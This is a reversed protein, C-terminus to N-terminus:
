RRIAAAYGYFGLWIERRTAPDIVPPLYSLTIQDQLTATPAGALGPRANAYDRQAATPRSDKQTDMSSGSSVAGLTTDPATWPHDTLITCRNQAKSCFLCPHRSHAQMVQLVHTKQLQRLHEVEMTLSALSGALSHKRSYSWKQHLKDAPGQITFRALTFLLSAPLARTRVPQTRRCLGGARIHAARHPAM